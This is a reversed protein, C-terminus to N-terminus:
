QFASLYTYFKFYHNLSGFIEETLYVNLKKIVKETISLMVNLKKWCYM